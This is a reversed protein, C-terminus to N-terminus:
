LRGGAGSMSGSEWLMLYQQESQRLRATARSLADELSTSIDLVKEQFQLLIQKTEKHWQLEAKLYNTEYALEELQAKLDPSARKTRQLRSPLRELNYSTGGLCLVQHDTPTIEETIPELRHYSYRSM